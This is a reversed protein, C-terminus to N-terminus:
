EIFLTIRAPDHPDPWLNIVPYTTGKGGEFQVFLEQRSFADKMETSEEEALGHVELSRSMGPLALPNLLKRPLTVIKM